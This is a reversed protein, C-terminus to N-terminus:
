EEKLDQKFMAKELFYERIDGFICQIDRRHALWLVKNESMLLSMQGCQLQSKQADINGVFSYTKSEPFLNM